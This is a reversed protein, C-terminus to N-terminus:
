CVPSAREALKAVAKARWQNSVVVVPVVLVVRKGQAEAHPGVDLPRAGVALPLQDVVDTLRDGVDHPGPEGGFTAHYETLRGQEDVVVDVLTRNGNGGRRQRKDHLGQQGVLLRVGVVALARLVVTKPPLTQKVEHGDQKPLRRPQAVVSPIWLVKREHEALVLQQTGAQRGGLFVLLLSLRSGGRGHQQEGHARRFGQKASASAVAGLLGGYTHQQQRSAASTM